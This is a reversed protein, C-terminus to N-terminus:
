KINQTSYTITDSRIKNFKEIATDTTEKKVSDKKVYDNIRSAVVLSFSILVVGMGFWVPASSPGKYKLEPQPAQINHLTLEKSLTCYLNMAKKGAASNMPLARNNVIINNGHVDHKIKAVDGIYITGADNTEVNQITFDTDDIDFSKGDSKILYYKQWNIQLYDLYKRIKADSLKSWDTPIKVVM